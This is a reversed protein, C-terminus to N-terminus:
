DDEAAGAIQSTPMDRDFKRFVTQYEDLEQMGDDIMWPLGSQVSASDMKTPKGFVLRRLRFSTTFPHNM